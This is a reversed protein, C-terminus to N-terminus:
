YTRNKIYKVEKECVCVFLSHFDIPDLCCQSLIMYIFLCDLYRKTLTNWLFLFDYLKPIVHLHTFASVIEMKSHVIRKIFM